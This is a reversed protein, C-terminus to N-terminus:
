AAWRLEEPDRLQYGREAAHLRIDDLMESYQSVTLDSTHICKDVWKEYIGPGRQQADAILTAWDEDDRALLVTVYKMKCRLHLEDKMMGSQKSIDTLWMFFTRAQQITREDEILKAVFTKGQELNAIYDYTQKGVPALGLPTKRFALNM